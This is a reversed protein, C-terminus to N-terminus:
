KTVGRGLDVIAPKLSEIERALIQYADPAHSLDGQRAMKELAWAAHFAARAGFNGVASKLTHAARELTGAEQREVAERVAALLRPSEDLFLKTLDALLQLDNDVRALVAARDLAGDGSMEPAASLESPALGPVLGEITEILTRPEIPKSVYGDMGAELCRDRDGKMAHATIAVIPLHGGSTKEKERILRTAEFGDVEPMQVDMLVLDFPQAELTALAERGNRATVVSHGRKELLRVALERNVANDEALLIRLKQRAERLSHRTILSAPEREPPRKGLATLIAELLESQKIPKVLYAVIGLQRCRAADGRQGASTLMMVTAGALRSDNRIREALTFGDMDPMQADILVLPFPKDLDKAREMAALATWGGEALAPKMQWGTLIEELIRRNTANDDVVLVPMDRLNVPEEPAPREPAAKPLGFRATFYFTSGRGLESEVWIRGGMMHVLQSSIALGLGTGGFKRTTSGDAQVFAEFIQRQKEEPIGIGTDNVAFRLLAEEATEAEPEVALTVEGEDTFKIANGVLNIIIQRLRTPDGVVVDRVERPVRFALELGKQHARLALTKMTEGISQSLNFEVRDLDLKGAEIKSFDLIDNVVTLLTEASARTMELYERQETSLPTDLVLETMGIIGNLPTRIEHSMNALFESKARNAGEAAEKARQLEHEGRKRETIDRLYATFKPPGGLHITSIALEVPFESGDARRATMEIRKGIVPGEGTALYHALGRRHTERLSPPIITEALERGLVDERQFGFTKEASPNFEIIRGQHDMTIISDLSSELIAGKLTESERLTQEARRRETIDRFIGQTAVPKGDEFRCNVNGSVIISRGDKAVFVTEVNEVAEGSLVRDRLFKFRDRQDSHIIDFLSLGSVEDRDYGLTELWAHNVYLFRGQPTVRQVLDLANDLFGQMREDALRRAMMRTVWIYLPPASLLVLLGADALDKGLGEPVQFFQLIFMAAIEAVAIVILVRLFMVVRNM